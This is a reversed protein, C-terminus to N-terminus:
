RKSFFIEINRSLEDFPYAKYQDGSPIIAVQKEEDVFKIKVSEPLIGMMGNVYANEGSKIWSYDVLEVLFPLLTKWDPFKKQGFHIHKGKFKDVGNRLRDDVLYDGIALDKRHTLILRKEALKGFHTNLWIKKGTFSDPVNDMPTSLFYVDYLPMLTKVAEIGGEIPDLTHFITPNAECIIDVMQKRSEYDPFADGTELEPCIKKIAGDFDAIVGDMDIKLIKKEM